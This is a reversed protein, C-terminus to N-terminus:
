DDMGNPNLMEGLKTFQNHRYVPNLLFNVANSVANGATEWGNNNTDTLSTPSTGAGGPFHTTLQSGESATFGGTLLSIATQNRNDKWGAMQLPNGRTGTITNTATNGVAGYREFDKWHERLTMKGKIDEYAQDNAISFNKRWDYAKNQAQQKIENIVKEEAMLKWNPTLGAAIQDRENPLSLKVKDGSKFGAQNRLWDTAKDQAKSTKLGGLGPLNSFIMRLDYKLTALGNSIMKGIGVIIDKFLSGPDKMYGWIKKTWRIVFEWFNAMWKAWTPIGRAFKRILPMIHPILPALTVDIFAGIIQYISGVVGTFLQSQKLMGAMNTSIGMGKMVKQWMRPQQKNHREQKRAYEEQKFQSMKMKRVDADGGGSSGMAGGTQAQARSGANQIIIRGLVSGEAM